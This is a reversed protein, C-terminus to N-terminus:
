LAGEAVAARLHSLQPFNRTNLREYCECSRAELGGRDLITITGRRHRIFGALQLENLALTVGPRQTGLMQSLFEHTLPFSDAEAADLNILLWRSCREELSHLRNCAACQALRDLIVHLYQEFVWRTDRCDAVIRELDEKDVAVAWGPIQVVSDLLATRPGLVAEPATVGYKAVFAVEVTRGDRMGRLLSVQGREVFYLRKVPQRFRHLVAGRKLEVREISASLRALASPPIARLVANPTSKGLVHANM